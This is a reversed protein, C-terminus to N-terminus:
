HLDIDGFGCELQDRRNSIWTAVSGNRILLVPQLMQRRLLRQLHTVLYEFHRM